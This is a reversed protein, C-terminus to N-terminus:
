GPRHRLSQRTGGRAARDIAFADADLELRAGLRHSRCHGLRLRQAMREVGFHEFPDRVYQNLFGADRRQQVPQADRRDDLVARNAAHDGLALRAALRDEGLADDIGGAIGVDRRAGPAGTRLDGFSSIIATDTMNEILPTLLRRKM